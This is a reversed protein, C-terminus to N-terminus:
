NRQARIQHDTLACICGHSQCGKLGHRAEAHACAPCVERTDGRLVPALFDPVAPGDVKRIQFAVSGDGRDDFVARFTRGCESCRTEAEMAQRVEMIGCTMWEPAACGPCPHHITIDAGRGTVYYSKHYRAEYEQRTTPQSM